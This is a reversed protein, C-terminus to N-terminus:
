LLLKKILGVYLKFTKRRRFYSGGCIIAGRAQGAPIFLCCSYDIVSPMEVMVFCQRYQQQHSSFVLAAHEKGFWERFRVRNSKSLSKRLFSINCSKNQKSIGLCQQRYVVNFKYRAHAQSTCGDRLSFLSM